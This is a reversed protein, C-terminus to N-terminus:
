EDSGSLKWKGKTQSLDSDLALVLNCLHDPAGAKPFYSLPCYTIPFGSSLSTPASFTVFGASCSPLECPEPLMHETRPVHLGVCFPVSILIFKVWLLNVDKSGLAVQALQKIDRTIVIMAIASSLVLATTASLSSAM